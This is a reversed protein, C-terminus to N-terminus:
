EASNNGMLLRIATDLENEERLAQELRESLATLIVRVQVASTLCENDSQAHLGQSLVRHLLTIPNHTKILLSPPVKIESMAQSFSVKDRATRLDNIVTEIAGLREAAAILQDFIRGKQNEVVRRYYAFAGIGLGQSECRRGKLYDDRDPGILKLVRPPTHPGFAPSEGFKVVNVASPKERPVEMRFAFTKGTVFCNSCKYDIFINAAKGVKIAKTTARGFVELSFPRFFRFGGCSESNCFLEVAPYELRVVVARTQDQDLIGQVSRWSNPPTTSLFISFDIAPHVIENATADPSKDGEAGAAALGEDTSDPQSMEKVHGRCGGGEAGACSWSPTTSYCHGVVSM